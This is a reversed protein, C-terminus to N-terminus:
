LQRPSWQGIYRWIELLENMLQDINMENPAFMTFHVIKLGQMWKNYTFEGSTSIMPVRSPVYFFLFLFM